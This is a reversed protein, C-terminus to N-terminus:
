YRYIVTTKKNCYICKIGLSLKNCSMCIRNNILISFNDQNITKHLDRNSKDNSNIPFLTHVPPKMKRISAKEPRGIRVGVSTSFKARIEIGSLDFITKLVSQKKINNLNIKKNLILRRLIQADIDTICITDNVCSHPIGLKEFIPKHIKHYIILNNKIILPQLLNKLEVFSIQEWYYLYKPYLPM